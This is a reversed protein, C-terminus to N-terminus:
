ERFVEEYKYACGELRDFNDRAHSVEQPDVSIREGRAVGERTLELQVLVRDDAIVYDSCLELPIEDALAILVRIESDRHKLIIPKITALTTRDGIFVRTIKVGRKVLAVNAQFYKEGAVGNWFDEADVYSTAKLSVKVEDLGKIGFSFPSLPPLLMYGEVLNHMIDKCESLANVARDSFLGLRPTKMLRLYDDVITCVADFVQHDQVLDYSLKTAAILRQESKRANVIIELLLSLITTALGLLVSGVTETGILILIIPLGVSIALGIYLINSM